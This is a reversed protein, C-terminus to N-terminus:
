DIFNAVNGRKQQFLALLIKKDECRRAEKIIDTTIHIEGGRRDLLITV